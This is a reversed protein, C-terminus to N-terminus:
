AREHAMDRPVVLVANARNCSSWIIWASWPSWMISMVSSSTTKQMPSSRPATSSTAPTTPRAITRWRPGRAWTTGAPFRRAPLVVNDAREMVGYDISIRPLQSYVEDITAQDDRPGPRHSDQRAEAYTDPMYQEIKDLLVQAKVFFMGGNWLYDGSAVYQVATAADPKEVFRTVHVAGLEFDDGAQVYGFGTEPRTPVIGITVIVDHAAAIAFANDVVAASVRRTTSTSTRLSRAWSRTPTELSCACQRTLGPGGRHQTSEPEAIIAEAALHPLDTAVQDAQSRATVM